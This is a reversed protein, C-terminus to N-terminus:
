VVIVNHYKSPRCENGKFLHPVFHVFRLLPTSITDFVGIYTLMCELIEMRCKM